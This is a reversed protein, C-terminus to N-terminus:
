MIHWLGLEEMAEDFSYFKLKGNKKKEEYEKIIKLDFEDEIKEELAKKFLTSLPVGMLEAYGNFTKQEDDNLRVTVTKM